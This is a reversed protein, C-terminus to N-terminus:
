MVRHISLILSVSKTHKLSLKYSRVNKKSVEVDKLCFMAKSRSWAFLYIPYATHLTHHLHYTIYSINWDFRITWVNEACNLFMSNTSWAGQILWGMLTVEYSHHWFLLFRCGRYMKAQLEALLGDKWFGVDISCQAFLHKTSNQFSSKKASNCALIDLSLLNKSNQCWTVKLHYWKFPVTRKHCQHDFLSDFSARQHISIYFLTPPCKSPDFNIVYWIPTYTPLLRLTMWWLCSDFFIHAYNPM